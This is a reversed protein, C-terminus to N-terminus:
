AAEQSMRMVELMLDYVAKNGALSVGDVSPVALGSYGDYAGVAIPAFISAQVERWEPMARVNGTALCLAAAIAYAGWNSVAAPLIFDVQTANLIGGKCPCGCDIGYPHHLLLNQRLQGFGIENGGDGVAVTLINRSRAFDALQHAHAVWDTDKPKGSSNHFVGLANPGPKEIFFVAKVDHQRAFFANIFARSKEAGTPYPLVVAANSRQGWSSEELLPTGAALVSRSVAEVFPEETMVCSRLGLAGFVRTLIAVGSPGDTEGRPLWLPNGTGTVLVVTGKGEAVVPVLARAILGCIPENGQVTRGADYRLQTGGQQSPKSKFELNAVQDLYHFYWHMPMKPDGPSTFPNM